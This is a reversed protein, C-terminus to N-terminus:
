STPKFYDNLGDSNPSFANPIGIPICNMERITLSDTGVCNNYDTVTLYYNGGNRIEMGATAAGTNWAYSKFGPVNIKLVNGSCLDQDKPLFNAPPAIIERIIVRASAKCNFENSVTVTYSGPATVTFNPYQVKIM